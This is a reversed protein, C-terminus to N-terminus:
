VVAEEEEEVASKWMILNKAIAVNAIVAAADGTASLDACISCNAALLNLGVILFIGVLDMWQPPLDIGDRDPDGFDHFSDLLAGIPVSGRASTKETVWISRVATCAKM